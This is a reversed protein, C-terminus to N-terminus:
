GRGLEKMDNWTEKQQKKIDEKTANLSGLAFDIRSIVGQYSDPTAHM